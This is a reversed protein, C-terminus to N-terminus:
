ANELAEIRVELADNKASLEKVASILVPVLREYKLGYTVGDATLDVILSHDNDSGYGHAQEIDLIDQAKFGINISSKKHTGDPTIALIEAPTVQGNDFFDSAAITAEIESIEGTVTEGAVFTGAASEFTLTAGSGSKFIGYANSTQGKVSENVTFTNAISTTIKLTPDTASCYWARKDWYYTIPQMADVWDLGGSFNTQEAKDREDSTDISSDACYFAAINDNGLCLINDGTTVDGSPATSTGAQYGVFCNNDGTTLADGARSGVVTNDDGTLIGLGAHFGVFV